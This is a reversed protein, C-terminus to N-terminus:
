RVTYLLAYITHKTNSSPSPHLPVSYLRQAVVSLSAVRRKVVHPLVADAREKVDDRSQALRWLLESNLDERRYM